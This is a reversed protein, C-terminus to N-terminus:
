KCYREKCDNLFYELMKKFTDFSESSFIGTSVKWKKGDSSQYFEYKDGNKMYWVGPKDYSFLIESLTYDYHQSAPMKNKSNEFDIECKACQKANYAQQEGKYKAYDKAVEANHRQALDSTENHKRVFEDYMQMLKEKTEAFVPANNKVMIRDLIALTAQASKVYPEVSYVEYIRWKSSNFIAEYLDPASNRVRLWYRNAAEQANKMGSIIQILDITYTAMDIKKDPDNNAYYAIFQQMNQTSVGATGSYEKSYIQSLVNEQEKEILYIQRQYIHAANVSNQYKGAFDQLLNINETTLILDKQRSYIDSMTNLKSFKDAFKQLDFIDTYKIAQDACLQAIYQYLEPYKEISSPDNKLNHEDLVMGTEAIIRKVLPLNGEDIAKYLVDKGEKNQKTFDIGNAIFYEQLWENETDMAFAMLSNGEADYTNVSAGKEILLRLVQNSIYNKDFRGLHQHNTRILYALPPLLSKHRYNVDFDARSVFFSLLKEATESQEKSHVAIFDLILYIPTKGEFPVNLNCGANIIIQSMEASSKGQLTRDVADYLLPVTSIIPNKGAGQRSIKSSADNVNSPNLALYDRMGQTDDSELMSHLTENYTASATKKLSSFSQATSSGAACLLFMSIMISKYGM